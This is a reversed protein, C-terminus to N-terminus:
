VGNEAKQGRRRAVARQTTFWMRIQKNLYADEVQEEPLYARLALKLGALEVNSPSTHGQPAWQQWWAMLTAEADPGLLFRRRRQNMFWANLQALNRGSQEMLVRKEEENPFANPFNERLWGELAATQEETFAPPPARRNSYNRKRWQSLYDELRKAGL